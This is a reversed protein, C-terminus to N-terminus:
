FGCQDLRLAQLEDPVGDCTGDRDAVLQFRLMFAHLLSINNGLNGLQSLPQVRKKYYLLAGSFKLYYVTIMHSIKFIGQRGERAQEEAFDLSVIKQTGLPNNDKVSPVM